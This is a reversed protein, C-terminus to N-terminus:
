LYFLLGATLSAKEAARAQFARRGHRAHLAPLQVRLLGRKSIRYYFFFIGFKNVRGVARCM